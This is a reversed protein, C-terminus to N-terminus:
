RSGKPQESGRIEVILENSALSPPGVKASMDKMGIYLSLRNTGPQLDTLRQTFYTSLRDDVWLLSGISVRRVLLQKTNLQEPALRGLFDTISIYSTYTTTGLSALDDPDYNLPALHFETTGLLKMNLAQDGCNSIQVTIKSNSTLAMAGQQENLIKIAIQGSQPDTKSRFRDHGCDARMIGQGDIITWGMLLWLASVFFVSKRRTKFVSAEWRIFDTKRIRGSYPVASPGHDNTM